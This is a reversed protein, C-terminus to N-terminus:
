GALARRLTRSKTPMPIPRQQPDLSAPPILSYTGQERVIAWGNNHIMMHHHRCLLIGNHLDTPGGRSWPTTHHAETWSPPRDCDPFRCGGDRAALAIRQRQTFTRQDRGINLVDGHDDFHIATVGAECMHREATAISVPDTQGDFRALGRRERLDRDTVHLQVVPRRTGLVSGTDILTAMRVLDVVTDLTIQEITRPDELLTDAHAAAEPDVFRPGGRRPSTAADVATVVHAASEPDLLGTIRTMGDPQPILHLYRRERLHAERDAVADLDLETRADRAAVALQEVTVSGSLALSLLDVAATILGDASV